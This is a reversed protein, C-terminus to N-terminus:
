CGRRCPSQFIGYGIFFASFITGLQVDTLHYDAAISHAAISINVRDLFSLAGTLAIWGVLVWRVRTPKLLELRRPTVADGPSGDFAWCRGM